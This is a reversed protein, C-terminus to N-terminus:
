YGIDLIELIIKAMDVDSKNITNQITEKPIGEGLLTETYLNGAVAKEFADKVTYFVMNRYRRDFIWYNSLTRYEMGYPKPRMAGAQGYLSRRGVDDDYIVSQMGISCDLQIAMECCNEFHNWSRYPMNDGWGLHVHGGATRLNPDARECIENERMTYANFDPDCGLEKASDPVMSMYESSFSHSREQNLYHGNGIMRQLTELLTDIDRSFSESDDAPPVNFELAMGDVQVSAGIPDVPYPEQKTGPIMDHASVIVGDEGNVFLEPDAGILLKM